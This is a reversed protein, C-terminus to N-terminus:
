EGGDREPAPHATVWANRQEPTMARWEAKLAKRGADDLSRMRHYLARAETRQEPSMHQWRRVGRHAHRRQEPTMEQWRRARELLRPRQEPESNWRERIPAILQERQAASLEDWAPMAQQPAALAFCPSIALAALLMWGFHRPRTNSRFTPASRTPHNM